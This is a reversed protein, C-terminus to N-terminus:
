STVGGRASSWNASRGQGYYDAMYEAQTMAPKVGYREAFTGVGPEQRGTERKVAVDTSEQALRREAAKQSRAASALAVVQEHPMPEGRLRRRYDAMYKRRRESFEPTSM